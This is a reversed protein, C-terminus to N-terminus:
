QAPVPPNTDASNGSSASASSQAGAIMPQDSSLAASGESSFRESTLSVAPSGNLAADQPEPENAWSSALPLAGAIVVYAILTKVRM